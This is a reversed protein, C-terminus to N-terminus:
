PLMFELSPLVTRAKELPYCVRYCPQASALSVPPFLLELTAVAAVCDWFLDAHEEANATLQGDATVVQASLLNHWDMLGVSSWLRGLTLGAMGVSLQNRYHWGMNGAAEVAVQRQELKFRLQASRRILPLLRMQSLDVIVMGGPAITRFDM